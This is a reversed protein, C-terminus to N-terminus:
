LNRYQEIRYEDLIDLIEIFHNISMTVLQVGNTDTVLIPERGMRRSQKYTKAWTEAKISFSKHDTAKVEVGYNNYHNRIIGDTDEFTAGSNITPQAGLKDLIKKERDALKRPM